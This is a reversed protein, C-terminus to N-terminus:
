NTGQTITATNSSGRQYAAASNVGTNQDVTLTNTHGEQFAQRVVDGGSQTIDMTNGTGFQAVGAGDPNFKAGNVDFGLASGIASQGVLNGDGNQTIDLSNAGKQYVGSKGDRQGVMNNDGFQKIQILNSPATEDASSYQVEIDVYNNSAAAGEQGQQVTAKNNWGAQDFDFIYNQTGYQDFDLVGGYSPGVTADTQGGQKGIDSVTNETGVQDVDANNDYGYQQLMTVDNGTGDQTATAVNTAGGTNTQDIEATNQDGDQTVTADNDQGFAMGATLVLALAFSTTFKLLQRM